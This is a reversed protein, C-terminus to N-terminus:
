RSRAAEMDALCHECFPSVQEGEEAEIRQRVVDLMDETNNLWYMICASDSDHDGHDPDKHDAVMAIGNDVLGLMHGVEHVAVTAEALPCIMDVLPGSVGVTREACIRAITGAFIVLSSGRYSVGLISGTDTDDAHHGDLFLTYMSATDGDTFTSRNAEEIQRVEDMSYAYDPGKPQLATDLSVEVEGTKQILSLVEALGHDRTFESPEAGVVYDVEMYMNPYASSQLYDLALEGSQSGWARDPGTLNTVVESDESCANLILSLSLVLAWHIAPHRPLPM